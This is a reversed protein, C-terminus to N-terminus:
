IGTHTFNVTILLLILLSKSVQLVGEPVQLLPFGGSASTDQVGGDTHDKLTGGSTPIASDPGKPPPPVIQNTTSNELKAKDVRQCELEDVHMTQDNNSSSFVASTLSTLSSTTREKVNDEQASQSSLERRLEAAMRDEEQRLCNMVLELSVSVRMAVRDKSKKVKGKSQRSKQQPQPLELWEQLMHLLPLLHQWCSSTETSDCTGILRIHESTLPSTALDPKDTHSRMFGALSSTSQMLKSTTPKYSENQLTVAFLTDLFNLYDVDYEFIFSGVNLAQSYVEVNRIEHEFLEQERDRFSILQQFHGDSEGFAADRQRLVKQSKTQYIVSLLQQTTPDHASRLKSMLRQFKADITRDNSSSNPFYLALLNAFFADNPLESLASLATLQVDVPTKTGTQTFLEAFPLLRCCWM